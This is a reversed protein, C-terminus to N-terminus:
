RFAARSALGGPSPPKATLYATATDVPTIRSGLFRVNRSDLGYSLIYLTNGGLAFVDGWTDWGPAALQIPPLQTGTATDIPIVESDTLNGIVYLRQGDPSFTLDYRHSVASPLPIPAGVAGTRLDVPILWQSQQLYGTQSDPSITLGENLGFRFLSGPVTGSVIPKQETNSAVDVPIIEDASRIVSPVSRIVSPVSSRPVLGFVTYVTKGDPAMALSWATARDMIQPGELGITAITTNTATDIATLTLIQGVQTTDLGLVYLAKGDPTLAFSGPDHIKIFGLATRTALDVVAVGYSELVYATKGDPTTVLQQPRGGFNIPKEVKGTRVDVPILRGRMNLVYVTTGDPLIAIGGERGKVGLPIPKLTTGTALNVPILLSPVNGSGASSSVVFAMHSPPLHRAAAPGGRRHRTGSQLAQPIVTATIVILLVAAATALATARRSGAMVAGRRRLPSTVPPVRESIDDPRVAAAAAEAYAARLRDELRRLDAPM